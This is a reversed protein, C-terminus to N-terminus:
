VMDGDDGPEVDASSREPLIASFGANQQLRTEVASMESLMARVNAAIRRQLSEALQPYESLMRRFAERPIFLLEVNTRAIATAIRRNETVLSLEGILGNQLFSALVVTRNGKGAVLDVQGSVIVYGGDSVQGERYIEEGARHFRRKSAFAILRLQEAPFDGFLSVRSFLELDDALTM